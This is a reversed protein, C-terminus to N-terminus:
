FDAFLQKNSYSVDFKNAHDLRTLKLKLEFKERATIIEKPNSIKYITIIRLETGGLVDIVV